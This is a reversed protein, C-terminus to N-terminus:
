AAQEHEAPLLQDVLGWAHASAADLRRASLALYATRLRGIRRPLSVCGGSGPILGYRIEPLEFFADRTAVIRTGFAALEAGAGVAAGHLRVELRSACQALLAPVSRESRVAHARPPDAMVGFEALDGGACFAAGAGRLSLRSVEPDALALELAEALADRMAVSLANRRAPRNLTLELHAGHREILLPAGSDAMAAPRSASALWRRFEAGAQLTAYALSELLLAEAAPLSESVRLVQVLLLAACPAAAINATLLAADAGDVAVADCASALAHGSGQAAIGIVPCAQRALWAELAAREAHNLTM